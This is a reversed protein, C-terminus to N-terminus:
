KEFIKKSLLSLIEPKEDEDFETLIIKRYDLLSKPTLEELELLQNIDADLFERATTIGLEKLKEILTDGFEVKFEALDIDEGGEKVLQINFGTLKSALRVNQGNKGIALSVQDESVLVTATRTEYSIQIDRVKAPALARMIFVQPNESYEILDISENNLERVIAHIRV